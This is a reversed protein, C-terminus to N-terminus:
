CPFWNMSLHLNKQFNTFPSVFFFLSTPKNVFLRQIAKVHDLISFHHQQYNLKIWDDCINFTEYSILFSSKNVCFKFSKQSECETPILSFSFDAYWFTPCSVSSLCIHSFCIHLLTVLTRNLSVSFAKLLKLFCAFFYSTINKSIYFYTYGSLTNLVSYM